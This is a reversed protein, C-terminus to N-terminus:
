HDCCRASNWRRLFCVEEGAAENRTRLVVSFGFSGYFDMTRALDNTPLGIHQLGAAIEERNM